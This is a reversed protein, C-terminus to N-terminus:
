GTQNGHGNLVPVQTETSTGIRDLAPYGPVMALVPTAWKNITERM